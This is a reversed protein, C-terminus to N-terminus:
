VTVPPSAIRIGCGSSSGGSIYKDVQQSHSPLWADDILCALCSVVGSSIDKAPWGGGGEGGEGEAVRGRVRYLTDSYIIIENLM